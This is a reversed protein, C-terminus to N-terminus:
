SPQEPKRRWWEIVPEPADRLLEEIEDDTAIERIPGLVRNLYLAMWGADYEMEVAVQVGKYYVGREVGMAVKKVLNFVDRLSDLTRHEDDLMKEVAQLARRRGGPNGSEGPAFPRGPGRRPREPDSNDAM